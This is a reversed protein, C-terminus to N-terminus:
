SDEYSSFINWNLHIWSWYLCDCCLNGHNTNCAIFVFVTAAPIVWAPKDKSTSVFAITVILILGIGEGIRIALMKQPFAGTNSLVGPLIGCLFILALLVFKEKM